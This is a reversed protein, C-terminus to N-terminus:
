EKEDTAEKFLIVKGPLAGNIVDKDAIIAEELQSQAEKDRKLATLAKYSGLHALAFDPYYFLASNFSGLAENFKDQALYVSGMNYMIDASYPFLALLKGYYELAEPYKGHLSLFQAYHFNSFYSDKELAISREYLAACGPNGSYDQKLAEKLFFNSSIGGPKLFFIYVVALVFVAAAGTRVFVPPVSKEGDMGSSERALLGACIFLLSSCPFSFLPFNFFSESSVFILSSFLAMSFLFRGREMHPSAKEFSYALAFLLAAYLLLGAAGTEALLQIYDDHAYSSNVFKFAPRDRLVAAQELQQYKKIAGPGSGLLPSGTFLKISSLGLDLRNQIEPSEISFLGGIRSFASGVSSSFDHSLFPLLLLSLAAAIAPAKLRDLAKLRVCSFIFISVSVVASIVAGRSSSVVLAPVALLVCAMATVSTKKGTALSYLSFPVCFGIFEAFFIPNGFFSYPRQAGGASFFQFLGYVISALLLINIFNSFTRGSLDSYYSTFYLMPSFFLLGYYFPPHNPSFVLWVCGYISYLAAFLSSLPLKGPKARLAAFIVTLLAAFFVALAKPLQYMDYFLPSWALAGALAFFLLLNFVLPKNQMM